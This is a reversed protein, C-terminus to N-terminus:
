NYTVFLMFLGGLDMACAGTEATKGIAAIAKRRLTSIQTPSELFQQDTIIGCRGRSTEGWAFVSSDYSAVLFNRWSMETSALGLRTM